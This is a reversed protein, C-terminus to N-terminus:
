LTSQFTEFSVLTYYEIDTPPDDLSRMPLTSTLGRYFVFMCDPMFPSADIMSCHLHLQCQVYGLKLPFRDSWTHLSKLKKWMVGRLQKGCRCKKETSVKMLLKKSKNNQGSAILSFFIVSNICKIFTCFIYKCRNIYRTANEFRSFAFLCVFM